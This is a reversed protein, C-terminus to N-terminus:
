GGGKREGFAALWVDDVPEPEDRMSRWWEVTYDGRGASPWAMFRVSEVAWREWLRLLRVRKRDDAGEIAARIHAWTFGLRQGAAYLQDVLLRGEDDEATDTAVLVCLVIVM